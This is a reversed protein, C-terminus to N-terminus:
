AHGRREHIAYLEEVLAASFADLADFYAGVAVAPKKQMRLEITRYAQTDSEVLPELVECYVPSGSRDRNVRSCVQDLVRRIEKAEGDSRPLLAVHRGVPPLEAGPYQHGECSSFTVWDHVRVLALVLGRIGPELSSEFQPQWRSFAHGAYSALASSSSINGHETRFNTFEVRNGPAQPDDWERLFLRVGSIRNTRTRESM